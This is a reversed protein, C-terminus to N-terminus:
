EEGVIQELEEIHTSLVSQTYEMEAMEDMLRIVKGSQIYNLILSWALMILLIIILSNQKSHKM